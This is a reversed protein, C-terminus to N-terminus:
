RSAAERALIQVRVWPESAELASQVIEVDEQSM